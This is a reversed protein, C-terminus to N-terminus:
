AGAGGTIQNSTMNYMVPKPLEIGITESIVDEVTEAFIFEIEDKVDQPIDDLDKENDKPLIIRNIGARHAALVKEKIGGVPLVAGRLSIEGTMALKPDVKHGTVLSAITTLLAVGASPGDKPIAGSPVHIHLDKKDFEIGELHFALRSRILSQSIKASEKMVDGLQGTLTLKGNGPMFAGEIFLIDGGVPTWALGTVVGPPNNKGAQQQAILEHGLIDYLMDSKVVYPLDVTGLVVKESAVRAVASLQRKLGRVGAERTYKEIITKLAEDDIQLQTDDLGHDELVEGILHNKAIHFKEHSTYSGVEIIEMRDRLPGPIDRLSNATAIFFVDSLDYPVELYHDSFTDNQEPDLVELLASEPDGNIGARIKDVEDLIFVPNREGARKMGQIIRGPLAGLYTRRHGRIESEDKVGGLSIRVYKRGLAEAISKGLSTKGTGPPGALLLISGQKNQKLKMVTLHQIIRDKVKELGYHQENLLKRAAEIDIDKIESKGWPLAVLLDLYNRIVNEESSHPGQRELKALEELAVEKVDEPMDAEEILQRYDKKGSGGEVDDLEEQIARLQEKLMNERNRKSMEENFKAAMEMQFKVAEKQEILIDLFKLSKEKLSRIELLAQKEELSIRMYPFVYAIIKTIDDLKNVQEVYTKSGKFNESIESVLYKIHKLIDEEDEPDLDMIDPILRYTARYNTGEPILEDVEVREVIEMKIQYFDKMAKANQIKILTGVQYFDEESYLGETSGERVALAIGYFDDAAVRKYIESGIKKSIKLTIDTKNLYVTNPIVLVSLEKNINMETM